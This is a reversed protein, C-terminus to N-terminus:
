GTTSETNQSVAEEEIESAGSETSKEDEGPENELDDVELQELSVQPQDM